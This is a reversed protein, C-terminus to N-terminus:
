GGGEEGEGIVDEGHFLWALDSKECDVVLTRFIIRWLAASSFSLARGKRGKSIVARRWDQTKLWISVRNGLSPSVKQCDLSPLEQRIVNHGRPNRYM